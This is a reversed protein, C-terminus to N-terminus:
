MMDGIGSFVQVQLFTIGDRHNAGVAFRHEVGIQVFGVRSEDRWKLMPMVAWAAFGGDRHGANAEARLFLHLVGAIRAAAIRQEATGGFTAFRRRRPHPLRFLDEREDFPLIHL